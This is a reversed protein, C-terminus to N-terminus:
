RDGQAKINPQYANAHQAGRKYGLASVISLYDNYILTYNEDIQNLAKNLTASKVKSLRQCKAWVVM